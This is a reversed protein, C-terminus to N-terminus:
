GRVHLCMFSVRTVKDQPAFFARTNPLVAHPETMVTAVKNAFSRMSPCLLWLRLYLVAANKGSCM